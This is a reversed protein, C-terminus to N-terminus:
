YRVPRIPEGYRRDSEGLIKLEYSETIYFCLIDLGSNCGDDTDETQLSSTWYHAQPTGTTQSDDDMINAAPLFISNGNKGTVKYAKKTADWEWTCQDILEKFETSTPMRFRGGLATFAADDGPALTTLADTFGDKGRAPDNCYKTLANRAGYYYTDWIYHSKPEIEGWAYYNGWTAQIAEDSEASPVESSAGLNCKAWKVSLGLDVYYGSLDVYEWSDVAPLRYMKNNELTKKSLHLNYLKDTGALSLAYEATEGLSIPKGSFITGDAEKVGVIRAGPQLTGDILAGDLAVGACTAPQIMPCSLTYGAYNGPIRLQVFGDPKNMHLSASVTTGSVTYENGTSFLYYNYPPNTGDSTIDFRKKFSDYTVYVPMPYYVATLTKDSLSSFDTDYITGNVDTPTWKKTASDYNLMVLKSEMGKFFVYIVDNDTWDSKALDDTSTAKTEAVTIEFTMPVGATEEQLGTMEKTCSLLGAVMCLYFLTKKM